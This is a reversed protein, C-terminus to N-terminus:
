DSNLPLLEIVRFQTPHSEAQLAVYGEKLEIEAGSAILAQADSDTPDLQIDQLEFVIRGNIRHILIDSGRIEMEATVWQDGHFTDSNSNTCHRTILEGDMVMNTGPTCVNSTTRPDSGNGGLLQSEISVPFEQDVTMSRPDQSHLMMGNNRFAWGPGNSVQEGIFRYEVRLLYHSFVEDYFLHGFEGNFDNWNEYSVTLLGDEVRFTDNLNVGLPQGTFKVQWNDLDTGNFLQIWDDNSQGLSGNATGLGILLLLARLSTQM